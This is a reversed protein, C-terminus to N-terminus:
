KSVCKKLIIMKLLKCDVSIYFQDNHKHNVNKAYIYFIDNVHIYIHRYNTFDGKFALNKFVCSM